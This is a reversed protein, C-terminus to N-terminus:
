EKKFLNELQELAQNRGVRAPGGRRRPGAGTGGGEQGRRVRIDLPINRGGEQPREMTPGMPTPKLSLAIRRKSPEVDLVRPQVRDGISVVDSPTQVYEMSLESIHIMGEESLGINVFAGFRTINTIIGDLMMGPRLDALSKVMPNLRGSAAAARSSARPPPPKFAGTARDLQFLGLVELLAERLREEDLDNQDDALGIAVPDVQEWADAPQLARRAIVLASAVQKSLELPPDMLMARAESLASVRVPLLEYPEELAARMQKHIETASSSVPVAVQEIGAVEFLAVLREEWGDEATPIEEQLEPIDGDTCVIAGVLAGDGSIAVAGIRGTALPAGTLLKQYQTVASRVADAEARQDLIGRVYGDLVSIVMEDILDDVDRAGAKPGLRSLVGTLHGKIASVPPEFDVTLAGARLGRRIAQWRHPPLDSLAETRRAFEEFQKVDAHSADLRVKLNGRRLTQNVAGSWVDLLATLADGWSEENDFDEEPCIRVARELADVKHPVLARDKAVQPPQTLGSRDLSAALRDRARKRARWEVRAEFLRHLQARPLKEVLFRYDQVLEPLQIGAELQRLLEPRHKEAVISLDLIRSREIYQELNM